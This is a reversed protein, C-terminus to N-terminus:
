EAFISLYSFLYPPIRSNCSTIKILLAYSFLLLFVAHKGVIVAFLIVYTNQVKKFFGMFLSCKIQLYLSLACYQPPRLSFKM